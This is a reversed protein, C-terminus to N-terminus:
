KVGTIKDNYLKKICSCTCNCTCRLNFKGGSTKIGENGAPIALLTQLM